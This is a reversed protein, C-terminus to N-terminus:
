KEKGWRKLFLVLLWVFAIMPIGALALKLYKQQYIADKTLYACFAIM